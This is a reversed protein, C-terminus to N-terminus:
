GVSKKLLDKYILNLLFVDILFGILLAFGFGGYGLFFSSFSIIILCISLLNKLGIIKKYRYRVDLHIRKLNEEVSVLMKVITFLASVVFGVFMSFDIITNYSSFKQFFVVVGIICVLESAALLTIYAGLKIKKYRTQSIAVCAAFILFLIGFLIEFNLIGVKLKVEERGELVLKQPLQGFYLSAEVKKMQMNADANTKEFGTIVDIEKGAFEVPINLPVTLPHDDLYFVIKGNLTAEGGIQQTVGMGRTILSFRNSAESSLKVPITFQFVGNSIKKIIGPQTQSIIVDKNTYVDISFIVSDKTSNIVNFTINNIEFTDGISYNVDNVNVQDDIKIDFSESGIKIKGTGNVPKIEELINTDIKGVMTLQNLDIDNFSEIKISNGDTYVKTQPLNFFKIRKEIIKMIDNLDNQSNENSPKFIFISGGEIDTGFRLIESRLDNVQVGLDGDSMAVCNAPEGGVVMNVYDGKKASGVFKNFDNVNNITTGSIQTIVSGVEVNVCSGNPDVETIVVGRKKEVFSTALLYISVAVFLTLIILKVNKFAFM